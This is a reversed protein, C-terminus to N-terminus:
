VDIALAIALERRADAEKVVHQVMHGTVAQEIQADFGFAIELDVTMVGDLVYPNAKALGVKLGESIHFSNDPKPVRDDGHVLHQGLDSYIEAPTWEQRKLGIQRSPAGTFELRFKCFLKEPGEGYIAPGRQVDLQPASSVKMVADLANELGKGTCQVARRLAVCADRIHWRGFAHQFGSAVSPNRVPSTKRM